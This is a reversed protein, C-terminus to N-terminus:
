ERPSYSQSYAPRSARLRFDRLETWASFVLLFVWTAILMGVILILGDRATFFKPRTAVMITQGMSQNPLDSAAIVVPREIADFTGKGDSQGGASLTITDPLASGILRVVQGDARQITMSTVRRTFGKGNESYFVKCLQNGEIELAM